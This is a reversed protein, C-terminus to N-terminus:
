AAVGRQIAGFYDDRGNQGGKFAIELGDLLRNHSYARCLPAGPAIPTLLELASIALQQAVHGSTDGGAVCVRRLGTRELIERVILGQAQGFVLAAHTQSIGLQSVSQRTTVIAPDEPGVASYFVLHRGQALIALGAQIAAQCANQATAPNVLGVYDLQLAVYGNSIAWAIQRKTIPSASGSMVILREVAGPPHLEIQNQVIGASRWYYTLAYEIASSGVVFPSLTSRAEWIVHGISQLHENTLTDFLVIECGQAALTAYHSLLTDHLQDFQLVDILGTTSATQRGLHLRLDSEDMPTIPHYRMAPHRDLRYTQNAVTAFLNGFVVYRMLVPLGIVLPVVRGNCLSRGIEIAHGISGITPASDFTSCVKYHLLPAGLSQLAELVPRLEADMQTPSMTRSIGAVGVARVGPHHTQLYELSPTELLLVTPIGGLVLAELADAAGTFDDGYYSLLLNSM